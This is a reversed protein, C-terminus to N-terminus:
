GPFSFIIRGGLLDWCFWKCTRTLGRTTKQSLQSLLQSLFAAEIEDGWYLNHPSKCVPPSPHISWARRGEKPNSPPFLLCINHQGSEGQGGTIEFSVSFVAAHVM